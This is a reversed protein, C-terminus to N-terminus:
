PAPPRPPPPLNAPAPPLSSRLFLPLRELFAERHRFILDITDDVCERAAKKNTRYDPVVEWLDPIGDARGAAIELFLPAKHNFEKLLYEQHDRGMAVVLDAEELIERTLLRPRHASPDAQWRGLIRERVDQRMNKPVAHTGASSIELASGPPLVARVAYEASMSRFINGTCVFLIKAM